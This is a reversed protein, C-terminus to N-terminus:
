PYIMVQSKGILKGSFRSLAYKIDKILNSGVAGGGPIDVYYSVNINMEIRGKPPLAFSAVGLDYDCPMHLSVGERQMSKEDHRSGNVFLTVSGQINVYRSHCQCDRCCSRRLGDM